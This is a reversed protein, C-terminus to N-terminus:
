FNPQIFSTIFASCSQRSSPPSPPFLTPSPPLPSFHGLCHICMHIFSYYFFKTTFILPSPLFLSSPLHLSPLSTHPSYTFSVSTYIFIIWNNHFLV